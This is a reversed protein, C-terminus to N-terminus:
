AHVRIWREAGCTVLVDLSEEIGRLTLEGDPLDRRDAARRHGGLALVYPYGQDPALVFPDRLEQLTEIGCQFFVDHVADDGIFHQRLDFALTAFTLDEVLGQSGDLPVPQM